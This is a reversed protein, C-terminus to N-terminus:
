QGARVLRVNNRGHVKSFSGVSGNGFNVFWAYFRNDAYPSSSWYWGDRTNPFQQGNIAPSWCRYEIISALENKNPLRWDSVGAFTNKEAHQLAQLWSYTNAVGSCYDGEWSQGLSCRQWMLGTKNHTVTGDGNDSFDSSPTTAAIAGNENDSTCLISAQANVGSLLLLVTM